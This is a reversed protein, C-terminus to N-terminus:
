WPPKINMYNPLGNSSKHKKKHHKSKNSHAKEYAKGGVVVYQKGSGKHKKKKHSHHTDYNPAPYGMMSGLDANVDTKIYSPKGPKHYMPTGMGYGAAEGMHRSRKLRADRYAERYVQRESKRQVYADMAQQKVNAKFKSWRSPNNAKHEDILSNADRDVSIVRGNEDRNFHTHSERTFFGM